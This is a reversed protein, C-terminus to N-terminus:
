DPENIGGAWCVKRFECRAFINPSHATQFQNIDIEKYQKGDISGNMRTVSEFIYDEIESVDAESLSYKRIRNKLLQYEILDFNEVNCAYKQYDSPFDRHPNILSFIYGYIGLQLWYEATAYAHVKWDVIMPPSSDYFVILDPRCTINTDSFNYSLSRQSIICTNKESIEKLLNSNLLNSLSSKIEHVAEQLKEADLNGNYEIDYFAAYIDGAKSKTMEPERFKQAKGFEIQREILTSAYEIVKDESPIRKVKIEPVIKKDIVKDVLSGRWAHISQLQKLLFIERRYPDGKGHSAVVQSFYWKRQCQSFIKSTSVSWRM